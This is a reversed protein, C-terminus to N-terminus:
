LTEYGDRRNRPRSVTSTSSTDNDTHNVTLETNNHRFKTPKGTDIAKIVAGLSAFAFIEGVAQLVSPQVVGMPPLLFSAILFALAFGSLIYFWLNKIVANKLVDGM